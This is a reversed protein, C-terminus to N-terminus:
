RCAPDDGGLRSDLSEGQGDVYVEGPKGHAAVRLHGRVGDICFCFDSLPGLQHSGMFGDAGTVVRLRREYISGSDRRLLGLESESCVV